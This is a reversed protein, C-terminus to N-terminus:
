QASAQNLDQQIQKIQDRLRAAEEFDEAVVAKGLKEQLARLRTSVEQSARHLRPMKGVHRDGKHMAKLSGQLAAAFTVYCEACGLRGIKKFDAQSFGCHPCKLVEAAPQSETPAVAMGLGALIGALSFGQPNDVGKAKSCPECLDVTQMQNDIIQTLHVTAENQQCVSCLM